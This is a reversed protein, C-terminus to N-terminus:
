EAFIWSGRADPEWTQSRELTADASDFSAKYAAADVEESNITYHWRGHATYTMASSNDMSLDPAEDGRYESRSTPWYSDIGDLFVQLNAASQGWQSVIVGPYIRGEDAGNGSRLSRILDMRASVEQWKADRHQNIELQAPDFEFTLGISKAVTARQQNIQDADAKNLMYLVRRGINPHTELQSTFTFATM